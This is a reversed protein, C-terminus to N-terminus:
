EEQLKSSQLTISVTGFVVLEDLLYIVMYIAFLVGFTAGSVGQTNLIGTWVVPFGATCPLEALTIGLAMLFTAGVLAPLSRGKQTLNRFRDAIKPKLGEPITFSVGEQFWFYDKINVLGFSFAIVAVLVRIWLLQGIYQFASFLGLIFLGYATATVTLFTLGVIIIKKRSKTYILMGLLFTLVWLSCPNFGDVFAILATSLFAPTTSLDVTGFLPVEITEESKTESGESVAEEGKLKVLPNVCDNETCYEVKAEIQNGIEDTFGIWVEEGLFTAPVGRIERGYEQGMEKVLEINEESSSVEKDVVELSPYEEQLDELFPKERQCYPCGETWFFYLVTEEEAAGLSFSLFVIIALTIAATLFYSRRFKM